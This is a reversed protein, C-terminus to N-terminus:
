YEARTLNIAEESCTDTVAANNAYPIRGDQLGKNNFKYGPPYGHLKYCKDAVHGLLGYHTCQPRSSKGKSAGKTATGGNKVAM